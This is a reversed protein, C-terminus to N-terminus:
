TKQRFGRQQLKGLVQFYVLLEGRYTRITSASYAKLLLLEVM